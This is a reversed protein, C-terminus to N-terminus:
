FGYPRTIIELINGVPDMFYAGRGGDNHNIQGKCTLHPDAWYSLGRAQIRGFIQDFEAESVLFAYHQAQIEEDTDLIALIEENETEVELFPGWPKPEPLGLMESYFTASERQDHAHVITHNLKISM